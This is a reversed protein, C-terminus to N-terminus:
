NVVEMKKIASIISNFCLENNHLIADTWSSQKVHRNEWVPTWILSKTKKMERKRVRLLYKNVTWGVSVYICPYILRHTLYM